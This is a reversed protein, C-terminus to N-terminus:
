PGFRSLFFYDKAPRGDIINAEPCGRGEAKSLESLGASLYCHRDLSSALGKVSLQSTDSSARIPSAVFQQFTKIAAPPSSSRTPTIKAMKSWNLSDNDMCVSTNLGLMGKFPVVYDSKEKVSYIM